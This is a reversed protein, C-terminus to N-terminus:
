AAVLHTQRSDISGVFREGKCLQGDGKKVYRVAKSLVCLLQTPHQPLTRRGSHILGELPFDCPPCQDLM